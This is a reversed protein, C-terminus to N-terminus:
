RVNFDKKVECPIKKWTIAGLFKKINIIISTKIDRKAASHNEGNNIIYMAGIFPLEDITLNKKREYVEVAKTHPQCFVYNKYKTPAYSDFSIFEPLDSIEFKLIASTGCVKDFNTSKKAKKNKADYIYGDKLVWGNILPNDNVFSALNCNVLDDADVFMVHGGGLNRVKTMLYLKKYFKDVMQEHHNEPPPYEVTIFDIKDAFFENGYFLNPVDHCCVIIRYNDDTQNLISSLTNNFLKEVDQWNNSAHKSRLPITFYLM